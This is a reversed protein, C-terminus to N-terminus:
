FFNRKLNNNRNQKKNKQKLKDFEKLPIEYFTIQKGTWDIILNANRNVMAKHLGKLQETDEKNIEIKRIM